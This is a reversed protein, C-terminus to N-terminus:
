YDSVAFPIIERYGTKNRYICYYTGPTWGSANLTFVEEIHRIKGTFKINGHNDLIYVDADNGYISPSLYRVTFEGNVPNPTITILSPKQEGGAIGANAGTENGNSTSEGSELFALDPELPFQMGYFFRLINRARQRATGTGNHALNNLSIHEVDSLEKETRGDAYVSHLLNHLQTMQNWEDMGTLTLQFRAPIDSLVDNAQQYHGASFLHDVLAYATQLTGFSLLWEAMEGSTTTDPNNSTLLQQLIFKACWDKKATHVSLAAEMKGRETLATHDNLLQMMGPTLLGGAVIDDYVNAHRYAETNALLIDYLATGTFKADAVLVQVVKVSLYPSIGLLQAKLAADNQSAAQIDAMLADTSGGDIKDELLSRYYQTKAAHGAYWEKLLVPSHKGPDWKSSCTNPDSPLYANAFHPQPTTYLPKEFPQDAWFYLIDLMSSNRYDSEPNNGALSFRNGCAIYADDSQTDDLDFQYDRLGLGDLTIIDYLGSQQMDNCFYALGDHHYETNQDKSANDGLALNAVHMEVFDNNYIENNDAGTSIMFTGFTQKTAPASKKFVNDEISFQTGGVNAVGVTFYAPAPSYGFEFENLEIRPFDVGDNYVGIICNEFRCKLVSYTNTSAEKMAHIGYRLNTFTCPQPDCCPNNPCSQTCGGVYFQADITFIGDGLQASTAAAPNNNMFDCSQLRVGKVAWMTIFPLPNTGDPFPQDIVFDCNKFYSANYHGYKLFEATRKNNLFKSDAAQVIGGTYQMQWDGDKGLKIANRAHEILSHNRIILKGQASSSQSQTADGWVQIGNWFANCGNTLTAHDLILKAGREVIIGVNQAFNIVAGNTITLTNGSTIRLNSIIKQDTDWVENNTIQTENGPLLDAEWLGRGYTAVVLKNACSNIEMDSIICQPGKDGFRVWCDMTNDKYFIGYDTGVYIRDNANEQYCIATAPLNPLGQLTINIWSNGGDESHFVKRNGDFAGCSIWIRDKNNPDVAIDTIPVPLGMETGIMTELNNNINDVMWNSGNRTAKFIGDFPQAPNSNAYKYGDTSFYVVDPDSRSIAVSSINAIQDNVSIDSIKQPAGNLFSAVWLDHIGIFFEDPKSPNACLPNLWGGGPLSSKLAVDTGQLEGWQIVHQIEQIITVGDPGILCDGNDGAPRTEYWDGNIYYNISGDQAGAFIMKQNNETIGLGYYNTISLGQGSIDEWTYGDTTKSIGGDTGVYLRGNGYAELPHVDVHNEKTDMSKFQHGGDESHRVCRTSSQVYMKEWDDPDIAFVPVPDIFVHTFTNESYSDIMDVTNFNDTTKYLCKAQYAKGNVCKTYVALVAIDGANDIEINFDVRETANIGPKSCDVDLDSFHYYSLNSPPTLSIKEPSNPDAPDYKYLGKHTCFWAKGDPGVEIDNYGVYGYFLGQYWTNDSAIVTWSGNTQGDFSGEWKWLKNWQCVYLITHDLTSTPDIAMAGSSTAWWNSTPDNSFATRKWTVGGDDSMIVGMGYGHRFMEWNGGDEGIGSSAYIIQSNQPHRIISFFGFISFGEDDTTCTWNKGGDTTHWIGSYAGVLIDDYNNPDASISLIRGQNQKDPVSGSCKNSQHRAGKSNLPGLNTWNIDPIPLECGFQEQMAEMYKQSATTMDGNPGVRYRWLYNWRYYRALEGDEEIETATTSTGGQAAVQEAKISQWWQDRM